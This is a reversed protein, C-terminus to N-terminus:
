LSFGLMGIMFGLIGGLPPVWSNEMRVQPAIDQLVSYLIGGAAFLMIGSVVVTYQALLFYGILAMGPGLLAMLTFILVIKRSSYTGSAKLERFANFGEPFNQVAVLLGLLVSGGGLAATTGLAISEPIFDSLMSALQSAPVKNRALWIDLVMFGLAGLLFSICSATTSLDKMGDPVLVLAVASLLAGAGMALIGHRLEEDLWDPFVGEVCALLGGAPMALGAILAIIVVYVVAPDAM